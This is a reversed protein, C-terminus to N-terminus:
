RAGRKAASMKRRTEASVRFTGKPRAAKITGKLIGCRVLDNWTKKRIANRTCLTAAMARNRPSRVVDRMLAMWRARAEPSPPYYRIGTEERRRYYAARMRARTVDSVPPVRRHRRSARIKQKADESHTRNGEGGPTHNTLNWGFARARAIWFRERDAWDDGCWEVVAM